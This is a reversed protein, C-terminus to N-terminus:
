INFSKDKENIRSTKEIHCPYRGLLQVNTLSMKLGYHSGRNLIHDVDLQKNGCRKGKCEACIEGYTKILYPRAITDRWEEYEITRKGKKKIPKRPKHMLCFEGYCGRECNEYQCIKGM